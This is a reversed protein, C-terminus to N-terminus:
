EGAVRRARAAVVSAGLARWGIDRRHFGGPWDIADVAAYARERAEQWRRRRPRLRQAGPRRRRAADGDADRTPAPTSSWWTRRRLRGRRRPDGLRDGARRSLREAALVVCIAAEDRWEPQRCARGARRHRAAHLYPVLDSELRLMLVQCEPDGFRANFEVLRPGEDGVMLGAYLVGRYPTARRRWAACPRSSWGRRAGAEVLERRSCRRRAFLDGHRRHQPGADGDFARKHDQAGGFLMATTATASRSCRPRRARGHVGRDGGARRGRRLPRRAHRRDRGRGRARDAAIVVGKGAALGDAKIVYPPEFGTSRRGQAAGASEFM